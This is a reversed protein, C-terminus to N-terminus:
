KVTKNKLRYEYILLDVMRGYSGIGEKQMNVKLYTNNIKSSVTNLTGENQEWYIKLENLDRLIGESYKKRLQRYTADDNDRLAGMAYMLANLCGSYKFENDPHLTSTLYGIYNAEEERAFGRQHAMEHCANFPIMTDPLDMNVNPECTFPFYVGGIGLLSMVKSLFVGKPRGYKGGLVSYSKAAEEYGKYANKFTYSRGSKLRMTGRDDEGVLARLTNTRDILDECVNKLEQLSVPSVDFSAIESFSNRQYNLGWMVVFSFYLVSVTIVSGKLFRKGAKKIESRRRIFIYLLNLIRYLIYVFFVVVIVEAVSFPIIGTVLSIAQVLLRNFGRSYVREVFDPMFSATFFLLIGVPLLLILKFNRIRGALKM